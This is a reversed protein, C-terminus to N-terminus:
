KSHLIKFVLERLIGDNANATSDVGQAKALTTRIEGIIRLVAFASYNKMGIQYDRVGWTSRLGLQAAIGQDSKEPAYYAVMLNAFYQFLVAMVMQLPYNKSNKEYYVAIQNAKFIDKNILANRFEFVNYDKSIGVHKEILEPTISRDAGAPFTAALKEIQNSIQSLDTGIFELLMSCSKQDIQMGNDRACASIFMLTESDKLIKSDFLIGHKAIEAVCKKRKDITGHKHCFVLVTKEQPKTLYASILESFDASKALTQAEKVIIVQRDGMMPYARARELVQSVTTDMAYMVLQNFGREEEPLANNEIYDSIKDIFYPEEGMLYYIPKYQGSKLQNMIDSYKIEAAM